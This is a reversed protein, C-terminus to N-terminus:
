EPTDRPSDKAAKKKGQRAPVFKGHEVRFRDVRGTRRCLERLLSSAERTAMERMESRLLLFAGRKMIAERLTTVAHLDTLCYKKLHDGTEL